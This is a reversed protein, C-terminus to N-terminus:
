FPSVTRAAKSHPPDGGRKRVAATASELPKEGYRSFPSPPFAPALERVGFFCFAGVPAPACDEVDDM